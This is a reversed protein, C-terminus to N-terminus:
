DEINELTDEQAEDEVLAEVITKKKGLFTCIDLEHEEEDALISRLMKMSGDDELEKAEKIREKYRVIATREADLDQELMKEAGNSMKRDGVKMTPIGGLYDIRNSLTKAHQMEEDAHELLESNTVWYPGVITSAHQIYQIAASYELSLDGNLNEIFQERTINM